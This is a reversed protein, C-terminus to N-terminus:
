EEEQVVKLLKDVADVYCRTGGFMGVKVYQRIDDEFFVRSSSQAALIFSRWRSGFGEVM